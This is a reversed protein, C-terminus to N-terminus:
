KLAERIKHMRNRCKVSCYRHTTSKTLFEKGCVPCTSKFKLDLREYASISGKVKTIAQDLLRKTKLNPNSSFAHATTKLTEANYEMERM